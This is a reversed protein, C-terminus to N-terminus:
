IILGKGETNIYGYIKVNTDLIIQKKAIVSKIKGKQGIISGQSIIIEGQAFVNGYIECDPGIIIDSESFVNGYVKINEKLFIAAHSKISKKFVAKENIIIATRSILDDKILSKAEIILVKEENLLKLDELRKSFLKEVASTQINSATIIEKAYISKFECNGGLTIAEKSSLNIGLKANKGITINNESSLWRKITIGDGASVSGEVALARFTNNAAISVDQGVFVEKLFVCGEETSLSDKDWLLNEYISNKPTKFNTSIELTEKKSLFIEIKDSPASHNQINKLLLNRFSTYFYFPDKTFAQNIFLPKDDKPKFLEYFAAVFPLFFLLVYLLGTLIFVANGKLLANNYAFALNICLILVILIIIIAKKM